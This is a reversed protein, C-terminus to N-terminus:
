TIARLASIIKGSLDEASVNYTGHTLARKIKAVKDLRVGEASEDALLRFVEDIFSASCSLTDDRGVILPANIQSKKL